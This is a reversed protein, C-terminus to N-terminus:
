FNQLDYKQSRDAKKRFYRRHVPVFWKCVTKNYIHIPTHIVSISFKVGFNRM